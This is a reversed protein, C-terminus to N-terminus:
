EKKNQYFDITERFAEAGEETRIGAKEGPIRLRKGKFYSVFKNLKTAYGKPDTRLINLEKVVEEEFSM